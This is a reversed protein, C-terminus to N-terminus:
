PAEWPPDPTDPRPPSASSGGQFWSPRASYYAANTENERAEVRWCCSRGAEREFLLENAWGWVLAATSEMGVNDMVRLDLAGEAHLQKWTDLLPDDANALFTHDFQEALRQELPRLSSFDVVFGHADLQTAEFWFTFSRSYGHVFRCHGPHRWQRHTCPYGSFRKSCCYPAASPAM